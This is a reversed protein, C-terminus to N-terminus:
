ASIEIDNNPTKHALQSDKFRCDDQKSRKWNDTLVSGDEFYIGVRIKYLLKLFLLPYIYVYIYYYYCQIVDNYLKLDKM